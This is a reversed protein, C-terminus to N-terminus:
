RGGQGLYQELQRQNAVVRLCLHRFAALEEPAFGRFVAAMARQTPTRFAELWARGEPTITARVSRRDAPDPVRRVLREGELTDVLGTVNRSSVGGARALEGISLGNEGAGRLRALVDLAGASLGRGGAGHSRLRDISQAASRVAAAAELALTDGDQAFAGMAARVGPDYLHGDTDEAPDSNHVDKLM